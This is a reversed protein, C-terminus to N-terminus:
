DLLCVATHLFSNVEMPRILTCYAEGVKKRNKLITMTTTSTSEACFPGLPYTAEGILEGDFGQAFIKLRAVRVSNEMLHISRLQNEERHFNYTVKGSKSQRTLLSSVFCATEQSRDIALTCYISSIPNSGLNQLELSPIEVTVTRSAREGPTMNLIIPSKIMVTAKDEQSRRQPSRLLAAKNDTFSNRDRLPSRVAHTNNFSSRKPSLLDSM